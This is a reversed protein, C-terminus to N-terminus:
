CERHLTEKPALAVARPHCVPSWSAVVLLAIIIIIPSIEITHKQSLWNTDIRHRLM